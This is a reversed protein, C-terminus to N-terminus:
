PRPGSALILETPFDAGFPGHGIASVVNAEFERLYAAPDDLSRLYAGVYSTSTFFGVLTAATM